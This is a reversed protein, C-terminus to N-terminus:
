KKDKKNEIIECFRKLEPGNKFYFRIGKYVTSFELEVFGSIADVAARITEGFDKSEIAKKLDIEEQTLTSEFPFFHTRYIGYNKYLDSVNGDTITKDLKQKEPSADDLPLFPRIDNWYAWREIYRRQDVQNIPILEFEQNCYEVYVLSSDLIDPFKTHWINM